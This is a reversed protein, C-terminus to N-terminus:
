LIEPAKYEILRSTRGSLRDLHYGVLGIFQPVKGVMLLVGSLRAVMVSLGRRRQRKALRAMSLPWPMLLVAAAIWWWVHTTLALLIALLLLSPMVGGWVFISRVTRPWNPDRADPHLFAMEGFAHGSRRTRSWWQGFRVIAADHLTMEADIRRLRWGRKRLRMSLETDEGAIMAANYFDVDRLANVRFLADGGCGTSEGIPVNWEDDCLANYVSRDPHRERRRGFVLALDPDARLVALAADIWGRQVECDGDVMQVFELDPDEALLKALGANRARAATFNPPVPLEVVEVGERQALAISGDTSGSDVYVRRPIARVSALCRALREGENRGIVVLGLIGCSSADSFSNM